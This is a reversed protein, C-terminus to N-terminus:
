KLNKHHDGPGYKTSKFDRRQADHSDMHQPRVRSSFYFKNLTDHSSAHAEASAKRAKHLLANGESDTSKAVPHRTLKNKKAHYALKKIASAAAHHEEHSMYHNFSLTGEQDSREDNSGARGLKDEMSAHDNRMKVHHDHARKLKDMYRGHGGTLRSIINQSAHKPFSKESLVNSSKICAERIQDFTKM